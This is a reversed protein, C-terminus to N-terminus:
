KERRKWGRTRRAKWIFDEIVTYSDLADKFFVLSDTGKTMFDDSYDKDGSFIFTVCQNSDDFDQKVLKMKTLLFSALPKNKTEITVEM